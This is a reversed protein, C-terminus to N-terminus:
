NYLNLYINKLNQLHKEISYQNRIITAANVAHHIYDQRNQIFDTFITFLNDINDSEYINAFEGNNTIELMVETNNVFVPIGCSIAEIVAIGFSDNNTAYIFADLQPLLSPVDTRTGLFKINDTLKNKNCFNICNEYVLSETVNKAGVFLHIFQIGTQYLRNLFECVFLHNRGSTFNGVSATLLINKNIGLEERLNNIHKFKNFDIGNYLIQRSFNIKNKEEFYKLQSNSVFINQDNLKLLVKRILRFLFSKKLEHGHFTLVAKRKSFCTILLSVVGDILQHSHVIDVDKKMLFRRLHFVYFFDFKNKPAFKVLSVGTNQFDNLLNGEKRYICIFRIDKDKEKFIDLILTEAGGRNLAGLLYAVKRM